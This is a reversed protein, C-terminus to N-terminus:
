VLYQIIQIKKKRYYNESVSKLHAFIKNMQVNSVKLRM